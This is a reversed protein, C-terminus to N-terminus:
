SSLHEEEEIRSLFLCNTKKPIQEETLENPIIPLNLKEIQDITQALAESLSALEDWEDETKESSTNNRLNDVKELVKLVRPIFQLQFKTRDDLLQRCLAEYREFLGAVIFDISKSHKQMLQNSKLQHSQLAARKELVAIMAKVTLSHGEAFKNWEACFDVLSARLSM